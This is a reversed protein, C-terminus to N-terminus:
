RPRRMEPSAGDDVDKTPPADSGTACPTSCPAARPRKGRKSSCALCALRGRLSCADSAPKSSM